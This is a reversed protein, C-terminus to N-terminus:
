LLFGFWKSNKFCTPAHLIHRLFLSSNDVHDHTLMIDTVNSRQSSYAM